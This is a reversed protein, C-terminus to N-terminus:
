PLGRCALKISSATRVQAAWRWADGTGWICMSYLVPRGTKNLAESM